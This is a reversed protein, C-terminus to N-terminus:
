WAAPGRRPRNRAPGQNDCISRANFPLRGQLELLAKGAFVMMSLPNYRFPGSHVQSPARDLQFQHIRQEDCRIPAARAKQQTAGRPHSLARQQIGSRYPGCMRARGTRSGAIM